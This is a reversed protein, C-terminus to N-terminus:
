TNNRANQARVERPPRPRAVVAAVRSAPPPGIARNFQVEMPPGRQGNHNVSRKYIPGRRRTGHESQAQNPNWNLSRAQRPTYRRQPTVELVPRARPANRINNFRTGQNCENAIHFLTINEEECKACPYKAMRKYRKCPDKHYKGCSLCQPYTYTPVDNNPNTDLDQDIREEPRDAEQRPPIRHEQVSERRTLITLPVDETVDQETRMTDTNVYGTDTVHFDQMEDSISDISALGQTEPLRDQMPRESRRSRNRERPIRILNILRNEEQEIRGQGPDMERRRTISNFRQEQELWRREAQSPPVWPSVPPRDQNVEYRRAEDRSPTPYMPVPDWEPYDMSSDRLSRSNEEDVIDNWDWGLMEDYEWRQALPISRRTPPRSPRVPTRHMPVEQRGFMADDQDVAQGLRRSAEPVPSFVTHRTGEEEEQLLAREFDDLAAELTLARVRDMEDSHLAEAVRRTGEHLRLTEQITVEADNVQHHIDEQAEDRRITYREEFSTSHSSLADQALEDALTLLDTTDVASHNVTENYDELHIRDEQGQSVFEPVTITLQANPPINEENEEMGAQSSAPTRNEANEMMFLRRTNNLLGKLGLM